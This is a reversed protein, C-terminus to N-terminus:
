WTKLTMKLVAKQTTQLGTRLTTQFAPVQHQTSSTWIHRSTDIACILLRCRVNEFSRNTKTQRRERRRILAIPDLFFEPKNHILFPTSLIFDEPLSGIEVLILLQQRESEKKSGKPAPIKFELPQPNSILAVNLVLRALDHVILTQAEVALSIQQSELLSEPFMYVSIVANKGRWEEFSVNDHFYLAPHTNGHIEYGDLSQINRGLVQEPSVDLSYIRNHQM